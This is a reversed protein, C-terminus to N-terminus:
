YDKEKKFLHKPKEGEEQPSSVDVPHRNIRSKVDLPFSPSFGERISAIHLSVSSQKIM